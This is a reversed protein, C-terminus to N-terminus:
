RKLNKESADLLSIDIKRKRMEKLLTKTLLKDSLIIDIIDDLYENVIDELDAYEFEIENAEYEHEGYYDDCIISKELTDYYCLEEELERHHVRVPVLM